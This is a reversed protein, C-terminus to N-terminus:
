YFLSDWVADAAGQGGALAQCFFAGLQHQAFLHAELRVVSEVVM